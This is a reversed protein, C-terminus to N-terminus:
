IGGHSEQFSQSDQSDQSDQFIQTHQPSQLFSDLTLVRDDTVARIKPRCLDPHPLQKWYLAENYSHYPHQDLTYRIFRPHDHIGVM